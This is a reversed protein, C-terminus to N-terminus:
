ASLIFRTRAQTTECDPMIASQIYGPSRFSLDHLDLNSGHPRILKSTDMLHMPEGEVTAGPLRVDDRRKVGGPCRGDGKEGDEIAAPDHAVDQKGLDFQVGSPGVEMEHPQSRDAYEGFALVPANSRAQDMLTQFGASLCSVVRDHHQAVRCVIRAETECFRALVAYAVFVAEIIREHGDFEFAAGQAARVPRRFITGLEPFEFDSLREARRMGSRSM